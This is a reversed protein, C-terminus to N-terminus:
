ENSRHRDNATACALIPGGHTTRQRTPTPQGRLTTSAIGDNAGNRFILRWNVATRTRTRTRHISDPSVLDADDADGVRGLAAMCVHMDDAPTRHLERATDHRHRYDGASKRQFHAVASDQRQSTLEVEASWSVAGVTPSGIPRRCLSRCLPLSVVRMNTTYRM